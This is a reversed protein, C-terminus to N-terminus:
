DEEGNDNKTNERILEDAQANILRARALEVEDQLDINDWVITLDSSCGEMKLFLDCIKRISGELQKRYFELETTLIDAQCQSMRETSSWSLGLLFPPISLKSLIQELLMRSPVQCDPIQNDAGIVKISVDGVSVFDKPESSKMAKSWESAIQAAREKTFSRDNEGPKYSVAFRVNGVRDWNTGVANIIKLLIDSIFPLGRLVSTGYVKGPENMLTSCLVLSPFKVPMRGGTSSRLFFKIDFPGSGEALEVDDLSANYLAAIRRCGSDPVIEGVATGYTILQDLYTSLFSEIGVQNGNVRVTSLFHALKKEAKEDSCRVRFGGVLRIIKYVAADIIPLNDRLSKYLRRECVTQTKLSSFPLGLNYSDSVATQVALEEKKRKRRFFEM